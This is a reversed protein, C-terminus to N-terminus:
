KKLVNSLYSEAKQMMSADTTLRHIMVRTGWYLADVSLDIRNESPIAQLTPNLPPTSSLEFQELLDEPFGQKGIGGKKGGRMGLEHTLPNRWFEYLEYAAQAPDTRGEVDWPYYYELVKKYKEGSSGKHQFLTSSIGGIIELLVIASAYVFTGEPPLFTKRKLMMAHVDTLLTDLHQILRRVTAPTLPSIKLRQYM